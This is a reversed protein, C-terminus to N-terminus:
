SSSSSSSSSPRPQIYLSRPYSLTTTLNIFPLYTTSSFHSSSLDSAAAVHEFRSRCRVSLCVSCMVDLDLVDMTHQQRILEMLEMLEM